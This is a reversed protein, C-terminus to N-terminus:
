NPRGYILDRETLKIGEKKALELLQRMHHSPIMGGNNMGWNRVTTHAVINLKRSLPYTGGFLQIVLAAPTIVDTSTKKKTAM